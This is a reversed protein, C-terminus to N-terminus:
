LRLAIEACATQPNLCSTKAAGIYYEIKNDMERTHLSIITCDSRLTEAIDTNLFLISM